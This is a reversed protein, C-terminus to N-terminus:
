LTTRIRELNAKAQPANSHFAKLKECAYDDCHACNVADQETACARIKCEKCYGIHRGSTSSCGDCLCDDATLTSKFERSWDLALKALADRDGNKTAVFAPCASCSLGCYAIMEKM